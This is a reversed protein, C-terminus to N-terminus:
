RRYDYGDHDEHWPPAEHEFLSRSSTTPRIYQDLNPTKKEPATVTGGGDSRAALMLVVRNRDVIVLGTYAAGDVVHLRVGEPPVAAERLWEFAEM